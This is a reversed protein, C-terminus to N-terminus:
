KANSAARTNLELHPQIISNALSIIKDSDLQKLTLQYVNNNRVWTITQFPSPNEDANNNTEIYGIVHNSLHVATHNPLATILQGSQMQKLQDTSLPFRQAHNQPARTNLKAVYFNGLSCVPAGECDDSYDLNLSYAYRYAFNLNGLSLTHDFGIMNQLVRSEPLVIALRTKKKITPLIQEYISHPQGAHPSNPKSTAAEPAFQAYSSSILCASLILFSFLPKM